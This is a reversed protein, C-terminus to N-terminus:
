HPQTFIRASVLWHCLLMLLFISDRMVTFYRWKSWSSSAPNLGCNSWREAQCVFVRCNSHWMRRSSDHYVKSWAYRWTLTWFNISFRFSWVLKVLWHSALELLWLIACQIAHKSTFFPWSVKASSQDFAPSGSSWFSPWLVASNNGHPVGLLGDTSNFLPDLKGRFNAMTMLLFATAVCYFSGCGRWDQLKIIWTLNM